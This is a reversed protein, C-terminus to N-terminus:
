LSPTWFFYITLALQKLEKSCRYDQPKRTAMKVFCKVALNLNPSLHVDCVDYFHNVSSITENMQKTLTKVEKELLYM